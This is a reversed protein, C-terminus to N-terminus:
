LLYLLIELDELTKLILLKIIFYDLLIISFDADIIRSTLIESLVGSMSTSLASTKRFQVWVSGWKPNILGM